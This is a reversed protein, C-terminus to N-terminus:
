LKGGRQHTVKNRLYVPLAQEPTVAVGRSFADVALKAIERSDPLREGDIDVAQSDLRERLVDAYVGWGTGAAHWAKLEPTLPVEVPPVVVEDGVLEAVGRANRCYQAWYVEGMRADIACAVTEAGQADIMGQAIAALTSVPVVPLGAAWALGQVSATAIRVGTFSGPGRGFALADLQPLQLGAEALVADVMPLLLETHRRPALEFRSIIEGDLWLAASCAETASDIALLKM